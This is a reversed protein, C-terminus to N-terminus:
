KEIARNLSRMCLQGIHREDKNSLVVEFSGAPTPGPAAIKSFNNIKQRILRKKKGLKSFIIPWFLHYQRIQMNGQSTM